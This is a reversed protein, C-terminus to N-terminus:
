KCAPPTPACPAPAAPAPAAAQAAQEAKKDGRLAFAAAVALAGAIIWKPEVAEGGLFRLMNSDLDITRFEDQGRLRLGYSLRSAHGDLPISLYFMTSSAPMAPDFAFGPACTVMSAVLVAAHKLSM